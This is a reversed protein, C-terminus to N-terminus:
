RELRKARPVDYGMDLEFAVGQEVGHIHIAIGGRRHIAEQMRKGLVPGSSFRVAAPRGLIGERRKKKQNLAPGKSPFRICSAIWRLPPMAMWMWPTSCPTAKSSSM